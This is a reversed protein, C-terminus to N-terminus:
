CYYLACRTTYLDIESYMDLAMQSQPLFINVFCVLSTLQIDRQSRNKWHCSVVVTISPADYHDILCARVIYVYVFTDSCTQVFCYFYRGGAGEAGAPSSRGRVASAAGTPQHFSHPISMAFPSLVVIHLLAYQTSSSFPISM